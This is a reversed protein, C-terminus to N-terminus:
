FNEIALFDPKFLGTWDNACSHLPKFSPCRLSRVPVALYWANSRIRTWVQVSLLVLNKIYYVIMNFLRKNWFSSVHCYFLNRLLYSSVPSNESITFVQTVLKYLASWPAAAVLPHSFSKTNKFIQIRRFRSMAFARFPNLNNSNGALPISRESRTRSHAGYFM